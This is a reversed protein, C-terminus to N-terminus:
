ACVYFIRDKSMRAHEITGDRNAYVPALWLFQEVMFIAGFIRNNRMRVHVHTGVM